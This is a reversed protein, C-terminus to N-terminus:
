DGAPPAPKPRKAAAPSDAQEAPETTQEALKAVDEDTMGALGAHLKIQSVLVAGHNPDDTTALETLLRKVAARSTDQQSM